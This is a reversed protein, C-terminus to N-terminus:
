SPSWWRPSPRSPCGKWFGRRSPNRRAWSSRITRWSSRWFRRRSTRPCGIKSALFPHPRGEFLVAKFSGAGRIAEADAGLARLREAPILDQVDGIKM